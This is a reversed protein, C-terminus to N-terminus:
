VSGCHRGNDYVPRNTEVPRDVLVQRGGSAVLRDPQRYPLPNLLVGTSWPFCRRTGGSTWRWFQASCSCHLGPEQALRLAYRIGQSLGGM